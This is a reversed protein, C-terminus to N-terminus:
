DIHTKLDSTPKKYVTYVHTQKQTWEPQTKQNSCKIWKCKLYSNIYINRNSSELQKPNIQLDKKKQQIEQNYLDM